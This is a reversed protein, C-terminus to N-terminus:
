PYRCTFLSQSESYYIDFYINYFPEKKVPLRLCRNIVPGFIFVGSEALEEYQRGDKKTKMLKKSM